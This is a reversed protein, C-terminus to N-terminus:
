PHAADAEESGDDGACSSITRAAQSGQRVAMQTLLLHGNEISAAAANATTGHELYCVGPMTAQMARGITWHAVSQHQRQVLATHGDRIAETTM